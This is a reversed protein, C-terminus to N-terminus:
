FIKFDSFILVLWFFIRRFILNTELDKRNIENLGNRLLNERSTNKKLLM